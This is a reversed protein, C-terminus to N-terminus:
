MILTFLYAEYMFILSLVALKMKLTVKGDDEEEMIPKDLHAEGGDAEVHRIEGQKEHEIAMNIFLNVLLSFILRHPFLLIGLCDEAKDLIRM